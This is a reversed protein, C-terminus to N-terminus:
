AAVAEILSEGALPITRELRLSAAAFIREFEARTRERGGSTIVLMELDLLKALDPENGPAILAEAAYVRAGSRMAARVRELIRVCREDSWDHLVHSLLYADGSPVSAFFDGAVFTCRARLAAPAAEAAAAIVSPRDFVVGRADRRCALVEALVAGDAGGVDVITAGPALAVHPAIREGLGFVLGRMGRTFAAELEPVGRLCSWADRGHVHEFPSDGSRVGYALANFAAGHEESAFWRALGELSGPVDRRLLEGAPALAYRGDDGEAVVGVAALARLLRALSPAHAGLEGALSAADRPGTALADALGLRAAVAVAASVWRGALLELIRARSDAAAASPEAIM